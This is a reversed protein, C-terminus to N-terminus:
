LCSRGGYITSHRERHLVNGAMVEVGVVILVVCVGESTWRVMPMYWCSGMVLFCFSVSILWASGAPLCM